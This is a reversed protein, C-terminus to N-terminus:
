TKCTKINDCVTAFIDSLRLIGVVLKNRTVLLSIYPYVILQHVAESLSAKEDVYESEEPPRIFDSVKLRTARECVFELPELWLANKELM